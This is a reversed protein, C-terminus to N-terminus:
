MLQQLESVGRYIRHHGPTRGSLDRVGFRLRHVTKFLAIRLFYLAILRREEPSPQGLGYGELFPPLRREPHFSSVM